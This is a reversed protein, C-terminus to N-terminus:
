LERRELSLPKLILGSFFWVWIIYLNQSVLDSKWFREYILGGRQLSKVKICLHEGMRKYSEIM